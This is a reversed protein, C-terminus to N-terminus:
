IILPSLLFIYIFFFFIQRCKLRILGNAIDVRTKKKKVNASKAVTLPPLALGPGLIHESM